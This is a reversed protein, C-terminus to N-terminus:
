SWCHCGDSTWLWLRIIQMSWRLMLHKLECWCGGVGSCTPLCVVGFWELHWRPCYPTKFVEGPYNQHISRPNSNGQFVCPNPSRSLCFYQSPTFFKRTLIIPLLNMSSFTSTSFGSHCSSILLFIFFFSPCFAPLCLGYSPSVLYLSLKSTGSLFFPSHTWLGTPLLSLGSKSCCPPSSSLPGSPWTFSSLSEAWIFRSAM